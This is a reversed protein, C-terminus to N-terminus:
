NKNKLKENVRLTVANKHATLQEAEAMIEITKGISKIGQASIQQFTIKKMFDDLSLGSYSRAYGNTPLTHNTGSAYDGAAEPTYPGLFVSGANKVAGAAKQLDKVMIILHEPAYLNSFDMMEELSNLLVAKSNAISVKAIDRRPLVDLQKKLEALANHLLNEDTTLFIVQSDRGHEAQSLLDAAIFAPNGTEDSMVLVESPGAPMDIAEGYKQAMQKAITVYQNGPGFIKDTRPVTQTGFTMAAIAQAGGAKYIKKVGSISAAYLIAPHINGSRDPPSCLVIEDCGAIVAPIALMLVTSFLPASGGPIYLGVKEIPVSKRWCQVGSVIEVTEEQKLQKRHFKRINLAADRIAQKLESSLTKEAEAIEQPPVTINEVLVGDFKLTLEKLAEDGKARLAEFIPIVQKELTNWDILPRRTLETWREKAPYKLIEM